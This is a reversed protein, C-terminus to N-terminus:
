PKLIERIIAIFCAALVVTALGFPIGAIILAAIDAAMM